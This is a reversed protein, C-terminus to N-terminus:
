SRLEDNPWRGSLLGTIVSRFLYLRLKSLTAPNISLGHEPESKKGEYNRSSFPPAPLRWALSPILYLDAEAGEALCILALFTSARIPFHRKAM